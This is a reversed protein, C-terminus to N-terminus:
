YRWAGFVESEFCRLAAALSWVRAAGPPDMFSDGTLVLMGNGTYIGYMDPHQQGPFCSFSVVDGPRLDSVAVPTGAAAQALATGPLPVGAHKYAYKVLGPGDFVSPGTGGEAYPAGIKSLTVGVVSDIDVPESLAGSAAAPINRDTAGTPTAAGPFPTATASTAAAIDTTASGIGVGTCVAGAAIAAVIPAYAWRRLRHRTSTAILM